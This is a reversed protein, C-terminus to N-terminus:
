RIVWNLLLRLDILANEPKNDGGGISEPVIVIIKRRGGALGSGAGKGVRRGREWGRVSSIGDGDTQHHREGRAFFGM